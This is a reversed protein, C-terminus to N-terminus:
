DVFASICDSFWFTNIVSNLYWGIVLSDQNIEYGVPTVEFKDLNDVIIQITKNREEEAMDTLLTDKYRTIEAFIMINKLTNVDDLVRFTTRVM